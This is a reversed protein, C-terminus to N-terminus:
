SRPWLEWRNARGRRVEADPFRQQFEQLRRVVEAIALGSSVVALPEAKPQSAPKEPAKQSRATMEAILERAERLRTGWGPWAPCPGDFPPTVWGHKNAPTACDACMDESELRPVALLEDLRRKNVDRDARLRRREKTDITAQIEAELESAKGRLELIEAIRRERFAFLTFIRRDGPLLGHEDPVDEPDGVVPTLRKVEAQHRAVAEDLEAVEAARRTPDMAPFAEGSRLKAVERREHTLLSQRELL